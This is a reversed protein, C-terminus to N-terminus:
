QVTPDSGVNKAAGIKGVRNGVSSGVVPHSIAPNSPHHNTLFAQIEPRFPVARYLALHAAV